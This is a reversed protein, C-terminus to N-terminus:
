DAGIAVTVSVPQGDYRADLDGGLVAVGNVTAGYLEAFGDATFSLTHESSEFDGELTVESLVGFDGTLAITGEGDITHFQGAFDVGVELDFDGSITEDGLDVVVRSGGVYVATNIGDEVVTTTEGTFVSRKGQSLASTPSVGLADLGDVTNQANELIELSRLQMEEQTM